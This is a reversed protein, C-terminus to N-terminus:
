KKTMDDYTFRIESQNRETEQFEFSQIGKYQILNPRGDKLSFNFHRKDQPIETKENKEIQSSQPTEEVVEIPLFHFAFGPIYKVGSSRLDNGCGRLMYEESWPGDKHHRVMARYGIHGTLVIHRCSNDGYNVRVLGYLFGKVVNKIEIQDNLAVTTIPWVSNARFQQTVTENTVGGPVMAPGATIPSRLLKLIIYLLLMITAVVGLLWLIFYSRQETPPVPPTLLDLSLPQPIIGLEGLGHLEEGPKILVITRGKKDIWTRGPDQLFPNLTILRSWQQPNGSYNGELTFLVDGKQIIYTDQNPSDQAIATFAIAVLM